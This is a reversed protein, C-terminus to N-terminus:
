TSWKQKSIPKKTGQLFVEWPGKELTKPIPIKFLVIEGRNLKKQFFSPLYIGSNKLSKNQESIGGDSHWHKSIFTHALTAGIKRICCQGM